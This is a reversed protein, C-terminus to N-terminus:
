LGRRRNLSESERSRVEHLRGKAGRPDPELGDLTTWAIWHENRHALGGGM